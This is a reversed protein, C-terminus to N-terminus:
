SDVIIDLRSDISDKIKRKRIEVKGRRDEIQRYKNYLEVIESWSVYDCGSYFNICADLYEKAKPGELLFCTQDKGLNQVIIASTRGDLYEVILVRAQRDLKFLSNQEDKELKKLYFEPTKDDKKERKVAVNGGVNILNESFDKFHPFVSNKRNFHAEIGELSIIHYFHECVNIVQRVHDIFEREQPWEQEANLVLSSSRQMLFVSKVPEEFLRTALNYHNKEGKLFESAVTVDFLDSIEGPSLQMCPKGKLDRLNLIRNKLESRLRDASEYSNEPKYQYSIARTHRIDFPLEKGESDWINICNGKTAQRIGLEYFVNPNLGTLDAIVIDARRLMEIIDSMIVSGYQNDAREVQYGLEEAIPKIIYNMITDSRNRIESGEKDMPCIFAIMKEDMMEDKRGSIGFSVEYGKFIRALM